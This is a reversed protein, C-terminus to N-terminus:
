KWLGVGPINQNSPVYERASLKDNLSDTNSKNSKDSLKSKYDKYNESFQSYDIVNNVLDARDPLKMNRSLISMQNQDTSKKKTEQNEFNNRQPNIHEYNNMNMNYQNIDMNRNISVNEYTKKPKNLNLKKNDYKFQKNLEYNNKTNIELNGLLNNLQNYNM